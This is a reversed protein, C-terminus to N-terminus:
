LSGNYKLDREFRQVWKEWRKGSIWDIGSHPDFRLVKLKHGKSAMVAEFEDGIYYQLVINVYIVDVHRLTVLHGPDSQYALQLGSFLWFSFQFFGFLAM